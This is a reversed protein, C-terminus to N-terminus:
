LVSYVVRLRMRTPTNNTGNLKVRGDAITNRQVSFIGVGQNCWDTYVASNTAYNPARLRIVLNPKKKTVISQLYRSINFVYETVTNGMEDKASKASGGLYNFRTQLETSSFDCPIPIFRDDSISPDKVDLYLNLPPNFINNLSNPSYVQDMILEARNIVRNSLGDFGPITLMAYSGPSTQIYVVSDGAPPQNLGAIESNTRDRVISNSLASNGTLTFNIVSTDKVGGNSSRVYFSLATAQNVIDFYSLAQGGTAEDPVIAFGKFYKVFNFDSRFILASDKIFNQAFSKSIPIRLENAVDENRLHISDNLEYPYYSKEGLLISNDYDLVRCTNYDEGVHFSDLLQYVKVKQLQNTDGFSHSYQLVLVASDVILSDPAAAPFTFPFVSPKLEMYIAANTKGFYPDNSIIGLAQLDNRMITDCEGEDFNNAIVTFTTDFTHINDVVPILNQGLTTTDIKTCSITFLFLIVLGTFATRYQKKFVQLTFNLHTFLLLNNTPLTAM